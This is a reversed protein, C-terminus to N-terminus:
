GNKQKWLALGMGGYTVEDRPLTHVLEHVPKQWPWCEHFLVRGCGKVLNFDTETDNAHDGDLYAMDFKGGYRKWIQAKGANGEIVHCEVNDICLYELAQMKLPCDVIDVSVVHKFYRSLIAATMGNWTGIEFCLKGNVNCERLFADLGHFVSSRRLIEPGFQAFACSLYPDRLVTMVRDGVQKEIEASWFQVSM